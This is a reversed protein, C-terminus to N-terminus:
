EKAVSITGNDYLEAIEFMQAFCISPLERKRYYNGAPFKFRGNASEGKIIIKTINDQRKVRIMLKSKFSYRGISTYETNMFYLNRDSNEINFGYDMVISGIKNFAQDITDSTTIIVITAGKEYNLLKEFTEPKQGYIASSIILLVSIQFLKRM